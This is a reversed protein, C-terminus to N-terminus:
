SISERFSVPVVFIMRGASYDEEDVGFVITVPLNRASAWRTGGSPYLCKWGEIDAVGLGRLVDGDTQM